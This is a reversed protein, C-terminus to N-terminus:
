RHMVVPSVNVPASEDPAAELVDGRAAAVVLAVLGATITGAITLRAWSSIQVVFILWGWGGFVGLGGGYVVARRHWISRDFWDDFREM